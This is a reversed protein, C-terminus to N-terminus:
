SDFGIHGVFSPMNIIQHIRSFPLNNKQKVNSNYDSLTLISGLFLYGYVRYFWVRSLHNAKEFATKSQKMQHTLYLTPISFPM